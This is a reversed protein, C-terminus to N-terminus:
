ADGVRAGYITTGVKWLIIDTVGTTQLIPPFGADTKWVVGLTTWDITRATGDDIQLAISQGSAWSTQGPTRNDGLTWTQISGNNPNLNVTTGDTIAFVEETYGDNLIASNLTKNTLTAANTREAIVYATTAVQTTNVGPAATPATPADGTLNGTLNATITGATFNGSADRLVLTNATNTSRATQGVLVFDTGNYYALVTEGSLISLGTSVSTKLVVTNNSGNAVVYVKSVAPAIINRSAGPTGTIRLAICRAQDSTGNFNTLTANGSTVDIVATGAIAQEILTGLNVNTTNGWTGSQDGTGILELRLIPSFTSAM